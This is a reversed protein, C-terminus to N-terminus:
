IRVGKDEGSGDNAWPQGYNNQDEIPISLDWPAVQKVIPLQPCVENEKSIDVNESEPENDFGDRLRLGKYVTMKRYPGTDPRQKEYRAAMEKGFSTQKWCGKHSESYVRFLESAQVMAKADLVCYEALFDGLADSDGRYKQTADLVARPEILGNARYDLYGSVLWALIGPGENALLWKDFDKIVTGLKKKINVTFPILKVRRWIGLDTGDIRPLHNTSLWFTHTRQFTWFDEHMRRANITRDGTLEKVRSERLSSNKQPESIAVFRMQYLSAKETPHNSKDGLLLDDNALTAYDGLLESVTGWITSKGNEGDGFAIPLIHEGTDGAISYGLLQQVYRILELDGDFILGLTYIWKPCDANPDYEVPALQTIRDSPNHPRLEGTKLDITGNGVNLLYANANLADVQCVVRPEYAAVQLFNAIGNNSNTKQVFSRLSNLVKAADDGQIHKAVAVFEDWLSEAFEQARQNVGVSHDIAWRRGDWSLWKRWPAVYLLEAAFRDIFRKANGADTRNEPGFLAAGSTKGKKKAAIEQRVKEVEALDILPNNM